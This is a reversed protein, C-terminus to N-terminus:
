DTYPACVLESHFEAGQKLMLFVATKKNALTLLLWDYTKMQAM